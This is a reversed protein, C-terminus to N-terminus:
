FTLIDLLTMGHREAVDGLERITMNEINSVAEQLSPASAQEHGMKIYGGATFYEFVYELLSVRPWGESM